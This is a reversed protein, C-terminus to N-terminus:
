RQDKLYFFVKTLKTPKIQKCFFILVFHDVLQQFRRNIAAHTPVSLRSYVLSTTASSNERYVNPCTGSHPHPLPARKIVDPILNISVDPLAVTFRCDCQTPYSSSFFHLLTTSSSSSYCSVWVLQM